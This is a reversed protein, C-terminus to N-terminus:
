DCMGFLCILCIVCISFLFFPHSKILTLEHAWSLLDARATKQGIAGNGGTSDVYHDWFASSDTGIM